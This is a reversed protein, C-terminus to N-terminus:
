KIHKLFREVIFNQFNVGMHVLDASFDKVTTQNTTVSIYELEDKNNPWCPHFEYIFKIGHEKCINAIADIHVDIEYTVQHPGLLVNEFYTDTFKQKDPNDEYINLNSSIFTKEPYRDKNLYFINKRYPYTGQLFVTDINVENVMIQLSRYISSYDAGPIGLNWYPKKLEKSLMHPWTRELYQGLGFTDSCGLCVISSDESRFNPGRFGYRNSIYKVPILKGTNSDIFGNSELLDYKFKDNLYTNAVEIEAPTYNFSDSSKALPINVKYSDKISELGSYLNTEIERYYKFIKRYDTKYSHISFQKPESELEVM